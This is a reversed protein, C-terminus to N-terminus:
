EAHRDHHGLKCQIGGGNPGNILDDLEDEFLAGREGMVLFEEIWEVRDAIPVTAVAPASERLVLEHDRELTAVFVHPTDELGDDRRFAQREEIDQLAQPGLVASQERKRPFTIRECDIERNAILKGRKEPPEIFHDELAAPADVETFIREDLGRHKARHIWLDICPEGDLFTVIGAAGEGGIETAADAEGLLLLWPGAA